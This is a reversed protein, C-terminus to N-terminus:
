STTLSRLATREAILRVAADVLARRTRAKRRDLRNAGSAKGTTATQMM